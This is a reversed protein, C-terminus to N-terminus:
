LPNVIADERSAEIFAEALEHFLKQEDPSFRALIDQARETSLILTVEPYFPNPAAIIKESQLHILWSTFERYRNNVATPAYSDPMAGAGPDDDQHAQDLREMVREFYLHHLGDDTPIVEVGSAKLAALFGKFFRRDTM